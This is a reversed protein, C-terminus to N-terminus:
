FFLSLQPNNPIQFNCDLLLCKLAGEYNNYKDTRVAFSDEDKSIMEQYRKTAMHIHFDYFKENEIKNSHQHYKGDYRRLRFLERLTPPFFGLTLCFNLKNIKNQRLVLRFATGKEGICDVTQTIVTETATVLSLTRWDVPLPKLETILLAIEEDTYIREIM